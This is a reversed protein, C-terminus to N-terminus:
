SRYLVQRGHVRVVVVVRARTMCMVRVLVRRAFVFVLRVYVIVGM